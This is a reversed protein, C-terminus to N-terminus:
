GRSDNALRLTAQVLGTLLRGVRQGDALIREFGKLYDLDRSLFLYNEVEALSGEAINYFRAKDRWSRRKFGEAVNAGISTAAKRMQLSLGFRERAPFTETRRYIELAFAHAAKWAELEWFCTIAMGGPPNSTPFTTMLDADVEM